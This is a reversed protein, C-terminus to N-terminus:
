RAVGNVSGELPLSVVVEVAGTDTHSM